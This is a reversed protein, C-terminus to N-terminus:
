FRYYKMSKNISEFSKSDFKTDIVPPIAKSAKVPVPAVIVAPPRKPTETPKPEEKPPSPQETVEKKKPVPAVVLIPSRERKIPVDEPEPEFVPTESKNEITDDEPVNVEIDEEGAPVEKEYQKKDYYWLKTQNRKREEADILTQSKKIHFLKKQSSERQLKSNKIENFDLTDVQGNRFTYFKTINADKQRMPQWKKEARQSM